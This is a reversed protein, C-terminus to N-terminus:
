SSPGVGAIWSESPSLQMPQQADVRPDAACDRSVSELVVTAQCVHQKGTFFRCLLGVHM